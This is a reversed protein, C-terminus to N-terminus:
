LRREIEPAILDVRDHTAWIFHVYISLKNGRMIKLFNLFDLSQFRPQLALASQGGERVHNEQGRLYILGCISM